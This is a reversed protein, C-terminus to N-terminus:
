RTFLLLLVALFRGQNGKSAMLLALLGENTRTRSPTVASKKEKSQSLEKVHRPNSQPVHLLLM